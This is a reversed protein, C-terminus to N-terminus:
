VGPIALKILPWTHLEDPLHCMWDSLETSNDQQEDDNKEMSEKAEMALPATLLGCVCGESM